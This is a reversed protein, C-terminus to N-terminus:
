SAPYISIMAFLYIPFFFCVIGRKKGQWGSRELHTRRRAVPKMYTAEVSPLGRETRNVDALQKRFEREAKTQPYRFPSPEKLLAYRENADQGRRCVRSTFMRMLFARPAHCPIRACVRVFVCVSVCVCVCVRACVCVCMVM